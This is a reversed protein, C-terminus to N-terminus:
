QPPFYVFIIYNMRLPQNKRDTGPSIQKTDRILRIAEQDLEDVGSSRKVTVDSTSGDKEVICGILVNKKNNIDWDKYRNHTRFYELADELVPTTQSEPLDYIKDSTTSTANNKDEVPSTEPAITKKERAVATTVTVPIDDTEHVPDERPSKKDNCFTLATSIFLMLAIIKIQTFHQM